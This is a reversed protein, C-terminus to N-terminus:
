IVAGGVRMSSGFGVLATSSRVKRIPIVRPCTIGDRAARAMVEGAVARLREVDYPKQLFAAIHRGLFRQSLEHTDYGSCLVVPVATGLRDLEDGVEQGTMGPMMLDLLIFAFENARETIARM